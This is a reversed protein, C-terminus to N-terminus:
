LLLPILSLVFIRAQVSNSGMVEAIGTCHEVSQAILSVPHRDIMKYVRLYHVYSLNFVQDGSFFVVSFIFVHNIM